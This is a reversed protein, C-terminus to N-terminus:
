ADSVFEEECAREVARRVEHQGLESLLEVLPQIRLRPWKTLKILHVLLPVM